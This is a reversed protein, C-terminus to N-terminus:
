RLFTMLAPRIKILDNEKIGIGRAINRIVSPAKMYFQDLIPKDKTFGLKVYEAEDENDLNEWTKLWLHKSIPEIIEQYNNLCIKNEAFPYLNTNIYKITGYDSEPILYSDINDSLRHWTNHTDPIFSIIQKKASLSKIEDTTLIEVYDSLNPNSKFTHFMELDKEYTKDKKLKAAVEPWSLEELSEDDISNLKTELTFGLRVHLRLSM